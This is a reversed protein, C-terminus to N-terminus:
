SRYVRQKWKIKSNTLYSFFIIIGIPYFLNALVFDIMRFPLKLKKAMEFTLFFDVSLKVMLLIVFYVLYTINFFAKVFLLIVLFNTILMLIALTKQLWSSSHKTKYFWRKRQHIFSKLAHVPQTFVLNDSQLLSTIKMKAHVFKQLLLVDDGSPNTENGQFGKVQLFAEKKYCFNAGNCLIPKGLNALAFGVAQLAMFDYHQFRTLFDKTGLIAVSGMVADLDDEVLANNFTLMWNEPVVCDADTTLIYEFRAQNIGMQLAAKKGKEHEPLQLLQVNNFVKEFQQIVEVSADTSHDNVFIIEYNDKPFQLSKFSQILRPLNNEENRFAVIISFQKTPKETSTFANPITLISFLLISLVLLYVLFIFGIFWM